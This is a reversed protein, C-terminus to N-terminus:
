TKLIVIVIIIIALHGLKESFKRRPMMMITHQEHTLRLMLHMTYDRMRIYQQWLIMRLSLKEVWRFPQVMIRKLLFVM